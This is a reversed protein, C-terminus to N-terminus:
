DLKARYIDKDGERHLQEVTIASLDVRDGVNPQIGNQSVPMYSYGGGNLIFCVSLGYESNVVHASKIADLDEQELKSSNVLNWKGKYQVLSSIISM